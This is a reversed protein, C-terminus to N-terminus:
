SHADIWSEADAISTFDLLADALEELQSTSLRHVREQLAAPLDGCRRRLQRLVIAEQGEQWGQELLAQAATMAMERVEEQHKRTASAIVVERLEPQEQPARKHQILLLLFQMAHRWEGQAEEPLGELYRVASALVSALAEQPEEVSQLVRLAWGVVSGELMAEPMTHLNLFLTQHMPQFPVCIEPLDM